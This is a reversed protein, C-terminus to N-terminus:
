NDNYPKPAFFENVKSSSVYGEGDMERLKNITNVYMRVTSNNTLEYPDYIRPKPLYSNNEILVMNEAKLEHIRAINGKKIEVKMETAIQAARTTRCLAYYEDWKSYMEAKESPTISLFKNYNNVIALNELHDKLSRLAQYKSQKQESKKSM